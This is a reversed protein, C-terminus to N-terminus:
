IFINKYEDKKNNKIIKQLIVIIISKMNIKNKNEKMNKKFKNKIISFISEIPNNNPSYPPTFIYHNGTKKILKLTKKCHHFPVNDFLFYYNKFKNKKILMEIFDHYIIKNVSTEHLEYYIINNITSACILSINKIRKENAPLNIPKAKKSLEKKNLNCNNFGSEDISIIKDINIKFIDNM